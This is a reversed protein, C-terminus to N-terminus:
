LSFTLPSFLFSLNILIQRYVIPFSDLNAIIKLNFKNLTFQELNSAECVFISVDYGLRNYEEACALFLEVGGGYGHMSKKVVVVKKNM